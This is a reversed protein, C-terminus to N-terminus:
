RRAATPLAQITPHNLLYARRQDAFAKLEGVSANFAETTELKKTDRAVDAAIVDHYRQVVPGLKTWDLWNNAIDRVYGLYRARLAPVALLRSILPTNPSTADVLPDLNM